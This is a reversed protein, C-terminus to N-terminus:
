LMKKNDEDFITVNYAGTAGGGNQSTLEVQTGAPSTLVIRIDNSWTHDPISVTVNVDTITLGTTYNLTSVAPAGETQAGAGDPIAIPTDTAAITTCSINATTFNYATAYASMACSNNSRVTWWYQTNTM